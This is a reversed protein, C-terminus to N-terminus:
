AAAITTSLNEIGRSSLASALYGERSDLLDIERHGRRRLGEGCPRVSRRQVTGPDQELELVQQFTLRFRECRQNGRLMAFHQTIRAALHRPSELDHLERTSNRLQELALEAFRHPG